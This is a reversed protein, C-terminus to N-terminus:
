GEQEGAGYLAAAEEAESMEPGFEIEAFLDALPIQANLEPLDILHHLEDYIRLDFLGEGARRYHQVFCEDQSILLYHRLSPLRFYERLKFALQKHTNTKSLVEAILLPNRVGNLTQKDLPHCTVMLDPYLYRESRYRFLKVNESFVHCGRARTISHLPAFANGIIRNHLNSAGAMAVIEGDHYEYREESAAELALYEAWTHDRHSFSYAM